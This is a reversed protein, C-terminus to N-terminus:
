RMKMQLEQLRYDIKNALKSVEEVFFYNADTTDKIKRLKLFLEAVTSEEAAEFFLTNFPIVSIEKKEELFRTLNKQNYKSNRNYKAIATILKPSPVIEGNHKREIYENLDRMRQTTLVISLNSMKIIKEREEKEFDNDLDVFIMDYFQNATQILDVYCKKIDNFSKLDEEEDQIDPNGEYGPLIELRGKFVVKTYDTIIEPSIKNSRILKSLGEIGTTIAIGNGRGLIKLRKKRIQESWFCNKLTNDKYSTSIVLIKYNHEIAMQTALAAVSLTQGIQKKGDNWFTVISM